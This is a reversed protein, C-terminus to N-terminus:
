HNRSPPKESSCNRKKGLYSQKNREPFFLVSNVEMFEQPGAVIMEALLTHLASCFRFSNQKATIKQLCWQLVVEVLENRFREFTLLDSCELSVSIRPLVAREERQFYSVPLNFLLHEMQFHGTQKIKEM